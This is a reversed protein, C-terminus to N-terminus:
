TGDALVTPATHHSLLHDAAIGEIRNRRAKVLIEVAEGFTQANGPWASRWDTEGDPEDYCWDDCLPCRYCVFAAGSALLDAHRTM